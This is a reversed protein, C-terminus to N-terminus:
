PIGTKGHFSVGRGIRHGSQPGAARNHHWGNVRGRPGCGERALLDQFILRQDTTFRRMWYEVRDNMEIPIGMGLNQELEAMASPIAIAQTWADSGVEPEGPNMGYGLGVIGVSVVLLAGRVLNENGQGRERAIWGRFWIYADSLSHMM